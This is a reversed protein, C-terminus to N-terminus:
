VNCVSLSVSPCVVHLRVVASQVLMARYFHVKKLTKHKGFRRIREEEPGDHQSINLSGCAQLHSVNEIM